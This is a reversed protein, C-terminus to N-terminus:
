KLKVHSAAWLLGVQKPGYIKGANLTLMDIGLRAVNVDLQTAGQSADCHFYIPIKNGSILRIEREKKVLRSIDSIPQITGIENNALAISILQTDPKIASKISDVSVLGKKDVMVITNKRVEACALIAHHEINSTIVHGKTVNFALNISETAGATIIIDNQKAGILIALTKKADEYDKRVSIAPQYPSSPNYFNDSFYPKMLHLVKPDMPTAAAHDLYIINNKM